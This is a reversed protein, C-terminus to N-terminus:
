LPLLYGVSFGINYLQSIHPIFDSPRDYDIFSSISYSFFGEVQLAGFSFDKQFGATGKLGFGFKNDRNDQYTYFEEIPNLGAPRDASKSRVLMEGYLGMTIFVKNRENGAYIIASVPLELYDLRTIPEEAVSEFTQQWGKQSYNLGIQIGTKLKKDNLPAFHRLMVGANFGQIYKEQIFIARYFRHQLYVSGTQWGGGIGIYTQTFKKEPKKFPSSASDLLVPNQALLHNMGLLFFFCIIITYRVLAIKLM